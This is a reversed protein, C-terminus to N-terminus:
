KSLLANVKVCADRAAADPTLKGTWVLDMQSGITDVMEAWHTTRPDLRGYSLADVFVKRHLPTKGPSLFEPSEAAARLAPIILGLHALGMTNDPTSLSRIVEWAEDPHKAKAPIAYAGTAVRTSQIKGKPLPAVDWAFTKIASGTVVIEWYGGAMMGVKGNAFLNTQQAQSPLIAVHHKLILDRLFSIGQIGGLQDLRCTTNSKDLIDGGYSYVVPFLGYPMNVPAVTGWQVISNPNFNSQDATNGGSDKTLKKAAQLYTDWTWNGEAFYQNPTKLGAQKFLDANYYLAIASTERPLAYLKDNASFQQIATPFYASKSLGAKQLYPDMEKLFHKELAAPFWSYHGYIVDPYDGSAAIVQVKQFYEPDSSAVVTELKVKINPHTQEFKAILGEYLSMENAEGQWVMRVTVIKQAEVSPSVGVIWTTAVLVIMLASLWGKRM